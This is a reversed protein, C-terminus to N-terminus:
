LGDVVMTRVDELHDRRVRAAWGGGLAVRPRFLFGDSLLVPEGPVGEGGVLFVDGDTMPDWPKLLEVEIGAVQATTRVSVVDTVEGDPM